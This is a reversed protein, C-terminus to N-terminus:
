FFLQNLDLIQYLFFFEQKEQFNEQLLPQKVNDKKKSGQCFHLCLILVCIDDKM